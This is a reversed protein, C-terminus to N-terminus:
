NECRVRELYKVESYCEHFFVCKPCFSKCAKFDSRKLWFLLKRFM